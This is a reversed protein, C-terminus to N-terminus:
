LQRPQSEYLFRYKKEVNDPPTKKCVNCAYITTISRGPLLSNEGGYTMSQRKLTEMVKGRGWNGYESCPEHFLWLNSSGKSAFWQKDEDLYIYRV